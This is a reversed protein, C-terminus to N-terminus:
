IKQDEKKTVYSDLAMMIVVKTTIQRKKKIVDIIIEYFDKKIIGLVKRSTFEIKADVIKEEM